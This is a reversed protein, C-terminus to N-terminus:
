KCGRAFANQFCIFDAANLVPSATSGDCNAGSDGSAYATLFCQFDMATLAPSGTSGDCNACWARELPGIDNRPGVRGAQDYGLEIGSGMSTSGCAVPSTCAPASEPIDGDGLVAAYPDRAVASPAVGFYANSKLPWAPQGRRRRPPSAEPISPDCVGGGTCLIMSNAIVSGASEAPTAGDFKVVQGPRSVFDFRCNWAQFKTPPTLWGSFLCFDGNVGSCNVKLTTNFMWGGCFDALRYTAAPPEVEYRGNVTAIGDSAFRWGVGTGWGGEFREGVIFCRVDALSAAPQVNGFQVGVGCGISSRRTVFNNVVTLGLVSGLTDNTHGYVAMAYKKGATMEAAPITGHTAECGEFVTEAGGGWAYTNFVTASGDTMFTCLGAKCNVFTAIGGQVAYHTMSHVLTYHSECGVIVARAQGNVQSEIPHIQTGSVTTIGYGQARINEIRSGDGRVRVGPSAQADPIAVVEYANGDVRPDTPVGGAGHKPHVYLVGGNWWWSGENAQVGAVSLQRSWPRDLDMDQKASTVQVPAARQYVFAHGPTPSWGAPSGVSAFATLLPKEGKGYDAVTVNPQAIDLGPNEHWVEGRKFLVAVNGGSALIVQKAKALSKWPNGITGTGAADDGSQSFYFTQARERPCEALRQSLLGQYWTFWEPSTVIPPATQARCVGASIALALM